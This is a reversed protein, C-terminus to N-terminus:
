LLVPKSIEEPKVSSRKNALLDGFAKVALSVVLRVIKTARCAATLAELSCLVKGLLEIANNCASWGDGEVVESRPTAREETSSSGIGRIGEDSTRLPRGNM